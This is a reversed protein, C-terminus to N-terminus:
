ASVLTRRPKSYAREYRRARSLASRCAAEFTTFNAFGAGDSGKLGVVYRGAKRRRGWGSDNGVAIERFRVEFVVPKGHEPRAAFHAIDAEFTVDLSM